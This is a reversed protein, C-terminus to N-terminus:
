IDFVGNRLRMIVIMPVPCTKLRASGTDNMTFFVQGSATRM